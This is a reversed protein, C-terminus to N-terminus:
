LLLYNQIDVEDIQQEKLHTKAYKMYIGSTLFLRFLDADIQQEKAMISMIKITQSLTKAKKYPRDSATLAEFIDAIAMIRSPVSLDKKTLQKPYGTGIMTEHHTGAYEPIKSLQKPFPIQELMKISMIVHEDIKFREEKTLTGKEISLNYLEGYNYLYNPVEEKFGDEKYSKYDFDVRQILHCPKDSILKERIPLSSDAIDGYRLLEEQSLGLKDDFNRLWEKSAIEQLRKKNTDDMFVEGTNVSAIFSFDDILEQQTKKLVQLAKDTDKKDIVSNLYSIKADRLLIEFRTRIEHIRNNITELKTAKDVVYEPTTVKGCDHLWAGLFFERYEDETKFSFDKFVTKDKNAEDLLMQAIQPVRKCHGSTYTSKADIAQAIVEIIADLLKEQSKQYDQISKSMSVFSSSLEYLELIHTDVHKVENFKRQVIKDNEDMLRRIPQIIKSTSYFILPITLIVFALAAYISHIIKEIYVDLLSEKPILVGIHLDKGSLSSNKSITHYTFYEIGNNIYIQTQTTSHSKFLKIIKDWNQKSIKRSTAIKEGSNEYLVIYSKEDFNQEKLFNDLENLTYDIGLVADTNKIHKAFTMGKMNTSKFKYVDTRIAKDSEIAKKFWLRSTTKFKIKLPLTVLTKLNSDLFEINKEKNFIKIVAFSSKKPANYLKILSPNFILNVVEYFNNNKDGVYIGKVKPAMLIIHIFDQLLLNSNKQNLEKQFNANLSLIELTEKTNIQSKQIYKVINKSTQHFNKNVAATALKTSSYYQLGLLLVSVLLILIIFNRLIDIRLTIKNM